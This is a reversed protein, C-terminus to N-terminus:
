KQFLSFSWSRRPWEAVTRHMCLLLGFMIADPDFSVVTRIHSRCVPLHRKISPPCLLVTYQTVETPSKSTDPLASEVALIHFIELPSQRNMKCPCESLMRATTKCWFVTIVALISEVTRTHSRDSPNTCRWWKSRYRVTYAFNQVSLFCCM